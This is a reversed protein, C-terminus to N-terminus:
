CLCTTDHRLVCLSIVCGFPQAPPVKNLMTTHSIRSTGAFLNMFVFYIKGGVFRLRDVCQLHSTTRKRTEKKRMKHVGSSCKHLIKFHKNLFINVGNGFADQMSQDVAVCTM